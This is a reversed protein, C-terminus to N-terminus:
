PASDTANKDPLVWSEFSRSFVFANPFNEEVGVPRAPPSFHMPILYRAQIGELALAHFDAEILVFEPVFAVDLQMDPLGYGLLDSVAVSDPDMDGTHFLRVDGITIIFGLNLLGPIGHSLYIAELHIGNADIQTSQGKKLDIPVVRDRVDSGLALLQAVASQTSVFMTHPNDLLYGRVLEPSFHDSHEHTALILDVGDFPPQSDVIPKLVGAWYGEYLADILIRKDGATILFGANNVFTVRVGDFWSEAIPTATPPVPTSTPPLSTATPLPSTATPPVPTPTATPPLPTSTPAIAVETAPPPSTPPVPTPTAAQGCSAASVLIMAAVFLLLYRRIMTLEERLTM